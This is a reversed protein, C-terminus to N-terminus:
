SKFYKILIDIREKIEELKEVVEKDYDLEEDIIEDDEEEDNNSQFIDSILLAIGGICCMFFLVCLHISDLEAKKIEKRSTFYLKLFAFIGGWLWISIITVFKNMM